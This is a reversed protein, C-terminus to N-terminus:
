FGLGHLGVFQICLVQQAVRRVGTDTLRLAMAAAPIFADTTFHRFKMKEYDAQEFIPQSIVQVLSNGKKAGLLYDTPSNAVESGNNTPFRVIFRGRKTPVLQRQWDPV